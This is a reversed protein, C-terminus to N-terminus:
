QIDEHLILVSSGGQTKSHTRRHRELKSPRNFVKGCDPCPHQNTRNHCSQHRILKEQQTFIKDCDKCQHVTKPKRLHVPKHRELKSPRDFTKGCVTCPYCKDSINSGPHISNEFEAATSADNSDSDSIIKVVVEGPSEESPETKPVPTTDPGM